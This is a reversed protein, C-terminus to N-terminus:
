KRKPFKRLGFQLGVVRPVPFQQAKRQNSCHRRSYRARTQQKTRDKAPTLSDQPFLNSYMISLYLLYMHQVAVFLIPATNPGSQQTSRSSYDLAVVGDQRGVFLALALCLRRRRM